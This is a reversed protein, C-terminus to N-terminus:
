RVLRLKACSFHSLLFALHLQIYQVTIGAASAASLALSLLQAGPPRTTGRVRITVLSFLVRTPLFWFGPQAAFSQVV